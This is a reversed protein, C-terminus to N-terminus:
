IHKGMFSDVTPRSTSSWHSYQVLLQLLLAAMQFIPRWPSREKSWRMDTVLGLLFLVEHHGKELSVLRM